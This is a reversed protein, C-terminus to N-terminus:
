RLNAYFEAHSNNATNQGTPLSMVRIEKYINRKFYKMAMLGGTSGATRIERLPSWSNVNM